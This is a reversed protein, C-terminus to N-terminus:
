NDFLFCFEVFPYWRWLWFKLLDIGLISLPPFFHVSSSQLFFIWLVVVVHGLDYFMNLLQCGGWHLLFKLFFFVHLDIMTEHLKVYSSVADCLSDVRKVVTSLFFISVFFFFILSPTACLLLQRIHVIPLTFTNKLIHTNKLLYCFLGELFIYTYIYSTAHFPKDFFIYM